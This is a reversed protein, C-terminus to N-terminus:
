PGLKEFKEGRLGVLVSVGSPAVRLEGYRAREYFSAHGEQFFFSEAGLRLRGRRRYRLLLEGAALPAGSHFREFRAVGNDDRSIVILGSLTQKRLEAEPIRNAIDYTLVMYDGQFLSRPDRPVLRLFVTTGSDLIREKHVILGNVAALIVIATSIFVGAKM